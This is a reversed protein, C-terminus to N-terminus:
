SPPMATVADCLGASYLPMFITRRPTSGTPPSVPRSLIRVMAMAPSNLVGAAGPLRPENGTSSPKVSLTSLMTSTAAMEGSFTTSSPALPM